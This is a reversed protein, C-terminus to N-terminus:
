KFWNKVKDVINDFMGKHPESEIGFSQQLKELLEKQEDNLKKPYEIKIQVIFDGYGYGNVDKVGENKFRFQTKDPTAPPIKLEVEGRLTPVKINAGLVIQTFFIPVEVYIDNGHRIFHSDENVYIYVYLDGRTGDPAINGRHGVRMRNGDDVGEPINITITEKIEEYGLGNCKNCKESVVEGSGHCTPCTQSFTMFGQRMFLQGQGQCTPCVGMKGNKAGSGNCSSCAKKYKYTVEKKTGFVAENFELTLEIQLDLNYNYRKRQKRSSRGSGFGTGFFDEFIDNLNSFAEEFSSFGSGGGQNKIADKGYRDYLARKEDDSLVQYAENIAKFREEADKDGPNKDPHYKQALKRFAKKIESKTATKSIELIEYYCMQSYDM